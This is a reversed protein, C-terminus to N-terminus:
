QWEIETDWNSRVEIIDKYYIVREPQRNEDFDGTDWQKNNNKDFIVKIKYKKPHLYDFMISGKEDLYKERYITKEEPDMLQIILPIKITDALLKITGYHDEAYTSFRYELTDTTLGYIDIFAGPDIQLTYEKEGEFPYSLVYERDKIFTDQEHIDHRQVLRYQLPVLVTDEISYLCIYSTDQEAVPHDTKIFINRNLDFDSGDKVNLTIGLTKETAQKKKKSQDPISHSLLLTDNYLIDNGASDKKMYNASITINQRNSVMTDTIWYIITDNFLNPEKIYWDASDVDGPELLNIHYAGTVPQNFVLTFRYPKIRSYDKLFQTVPPLEEFLYMNVPAAKQQFMRNYLSDYSISDDLIWKNTDVPIEITDNFDKQQKLSDNVSINTLATDNITLRKNLSTDISTDNLSTDNLLTDSQMTDATTTDHYVPPYYYNKNLIFVSDSFAIEENPLDYIFNNNIDNLVFLQFTDNKVHIIEFYGEKNTRGVYAPTDVYFASDKLIEHLMVRCVDEPPRNNFAYLVRGFVALSDIHSGTSFVYKFDKLPNAERFDVIAEGFNLTYTVNEKLQENFIVRISKGMNIVEPQEKMPPSVLLEQNINRLEIFEDFYINIENGKFHTSYNVPESVLIRPPTKDKPGGGPHGIKACQFLLLSVLVVLFYIVIKNLSM